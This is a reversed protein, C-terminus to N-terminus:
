GLQNAHEPTAIREDALSTEVTPLPPLERLGFRRYAPALFGPAYWNYRGAIRMFAPVLIGRVLTADMLIAIALGFGLMKLYAVGSTLFSLFVVSLLLAAATILGGTRELGRAVAKTNDGTIDYEERIRSLLFVEYDMSLGFAICFMMIPNTAVITGTVTFDGVLWRLHGDQFVWVMAGFSACLSLTNLVLAKIPMLIGGSLLFLLIAVSLVIIAIAYPLRSKLASLQDTLAAATGGVKVAFPAPTDRVQSVLSQGAKSYPDSTPILSLWTGESSGFRAVQQGAPTVLRGHSYSGTFADVRAVQPLMSLRSAYGDIASLQQHPDGSQGAVVTVPALEGSVYNAALTDTVQHSQATTPLGRADALSFRISFFPTLLVLLIAIVIAAMPIPRRMVTIALKHWFGNEGRPARRSVSWKNVRTGLVALLAPIVVLAALAAFVVVAIGSYAFSRLFYMPFVLLGSLSLGVTLASFIVTRGATQMTVGIAENVTRGRKLEERFRNVMFLSYDIGLGFGLATTVNMAFVSVDTVGVLLRLVALTALVSIVGLALPLLAAVVGRFVFILLLLTLPIAFAEAVTLDKQTQETLEYNAVAQGGFTLTQGQFGHRYKTYLAKVTTNIQDNNGSLYALVLASSGDKARLSPTHLTWYSQVQEVGPQAKLASVLADGNSVTAPDATGAPTNVLLVVDPQGGNFQQSLMARVETSPAGPVDYGGVSLKAAVNGGIVAAFVCFLLTAALVYRRRGIVIQTLRSLM